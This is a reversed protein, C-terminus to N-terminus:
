VHELVEKRVTIKWCSLGSEAHVTPEVELVDGERLYLFRPGGFGIPKSPLLTGTNHIHFVDDGTLDLWSEVPKTLMAM